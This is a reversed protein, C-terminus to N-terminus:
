VLKLKVAVDGAKSAPVLKIFVKKTNNPMNATSVSEVKVNFMKEFEEKIESKKARQDVMYTITNKSNIMEIAKETSVPHLLVQM